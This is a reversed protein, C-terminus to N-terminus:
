NNLAHKIIKSGFSVHIALEDRIIPPCRDPDMRRNGNLNVAIIPIGMELAIEQEWRVFKHLNKTKEGVLVILVKSNAM